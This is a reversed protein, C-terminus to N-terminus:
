QTIGFGFHRFIQRVEETKLFALFRQAQDQHPSGAVIAAPYIIKPAFEAPIELAVRVKASSTADSKYVFGADANGAEVVALTARVNETPAIKAEIRDWLKAKTLVKKAYVGAPVGQPDAIAIRTIEPKALDSLQSLNQGSDKHAIVVLLNTLLDCRTAPAIKNQLRNMQAEDASFFIDAPAGEEIQRALMSSAGFNFVVKTHSDKEFKAGIEKLADTLSAAASVFLEEAYLSVTTASAFVLVMSLRIMQGSEACRCRHCATNRKGQMGWPATFMGKAVKLDHRLVAECVLLRGVQELVRVIWDIPKRPPVLRKLFRSPLVLRNKQGDAVGSTVPAM